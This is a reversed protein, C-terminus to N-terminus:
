SKARPTSRPPEAESRPPTSVLSEEPNLVTEIRPSRSLVKNRLWSQIALRKDQLFVCAAYFVVAILILASLIAPSFAFGLNVALGAFTMLAALGFFLITFARASVARDFKDTASCYSGQAAIWFNM